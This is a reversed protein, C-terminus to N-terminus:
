AYIVGARLALVVAQVRTAVGYKTKIREIHANATKESIALIEGIEWDTKGAAAWQLCERERLSLPPLQSRHRRSPTLARIRAHAYIAALQLEARERTSLTRTSGAVTVVAAGSRLGLIPVVFGTEMRFDAAEHVIRRQGKTYERHVLAEEWTYPDLTHAMHLVAPDRRVYDEDLYRREWGEPWSLCLITDELREGPGPLDALGGFRLGYNGAFGLFSRWVADPAGISEFGDILELVAPTAVSM